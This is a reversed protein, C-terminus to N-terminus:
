TKAVPKGYPGSAVQRLSEVEDFPIEVIQGAKRFPRTLLLRVVGPGRCLELGVHSREDGTDDQAIVEIEYGDAM